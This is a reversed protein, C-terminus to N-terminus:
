DQLLSRDAEVRLRPVAAIAAEHVLDLRSGNVVHRLDETVEVPQLRVLLEREALAAHEVRGAREDHFLDRDRAALGFILDLRLDFCDEERVSSRERLTFRASM